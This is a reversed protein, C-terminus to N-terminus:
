ASKGKMEKEMLYSVYFFLAREMNVPSPTTM